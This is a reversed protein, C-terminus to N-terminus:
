LRNRGPGRERGPGWTSDYLAVEIDEGFGNGAHGPPDPGVALADVGPWPLTGRRAPGLHHHHQELQDLATYVQQSAIGPDALSRAWRYMCSAIPTM